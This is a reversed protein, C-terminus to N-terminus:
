SIFYPASCEVTNSLMHLTLFFYTHEAAGISQGDVSYCILNSNLLFNQAACADEWFLFSRIMIPIEVAYWRSDHNRLEYLFPPECASQTKTYRDYHLNPSRSQGQLIMYGIWSRKQM